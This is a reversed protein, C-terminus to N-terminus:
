RCKCQSVTFDRTASKCSMCNKLLQQNIGELNVNVLLYMKVSLEPKMSRQQTLRRIM